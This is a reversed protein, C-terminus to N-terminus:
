KLLASKKEVTEIFATLTLAYMYKCERENLQTHMGNYWLIELELLTIIEYM